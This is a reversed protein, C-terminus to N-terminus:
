LSPSPPTVIIHTSLPFFPPPKSGPRSVIRILKSRPQFVQHRFFLFRSPGVHKTMADPVIDHTGQHQPKVQNTQYAWRVHHHKLDIHRSKSPIIPTTTLKIASANDELMISPNLQPYGLDTAFQRYHLLPKCTRSLTVYEGEAPSLSVGKEKSSFSLFPATKAGVKGVTLTYAGHSRGDEKYVNHAMDSASHIEVGNPFDSKDSSFTPGLTPTGKLYRLLHLQKLYDSNDPAESKTLIFSVTKKIDHRLPLIFILEGNVTRFEATAAASLPTPDTSPEFLGEIDPSLAPPVNDMGIRQLMNAIYPGYHLTISGDDNLELTQGCIGKSPSHFETPGYRETIISQFEAYLSPCTTCGEFDDVHFSVTLKDLPDTPSTKQLTYPSSPCRTYDHSTLRGLLDQDYINNSQKLGYHAGVIEALANSYPQPLDAPLKTLLQTGGTSSRPLPNNNIFAAEIDGSFTILTKNRHAADALATALVFARHTPDSTSAYTDSYTHPPQMKGNMVVRSSVTKDLKEKVIWQSPLTVADPEIQSRPILKLSQWKTFAKNLEKAVSNQIKIPDLITYAKRLTFENQQRPPPIPRLDTPRNTLDTPIPHNQLHM